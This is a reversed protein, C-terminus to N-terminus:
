LKFKLTKRYDQELCLLLPKTRCACDCTLICPKGQSIQFVRSTDNKNTYQITDDVIKRNM